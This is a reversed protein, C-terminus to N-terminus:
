LPNIEYFFGSQCNNIFIWYNPKSKLKLPNGPIGNLSLLEKPSPFPIHMHPRLKWESRGPFPILLIFKLFIYIRLFSYICAIFASVIFNFLRFQWIIRLFINVPLHFPRLMPEFLLNFFEFLKFFYFHQHPCNAKHVSRDSLQLHHFGAPVAYLSSM